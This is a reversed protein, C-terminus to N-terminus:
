TGCFKVEVDWMRSMYCIHNTHNRQVANVSLYKSRECFKSFRSDAKDHRDRCPVVQSGSSLNKHFKINLNKKLAQTSFELKMLIQCSYPYKVCLGIYM